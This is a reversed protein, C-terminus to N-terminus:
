FSLGLADTAHYRFWAMLVIALLFWFGIGARRQGVMALVVAIPGLLFPLMMIM